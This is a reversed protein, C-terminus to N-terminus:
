CFLGGAGGGEEKDVREVISTGTQGVVGLRGLAGALALEVAENIDVLLREGRVADDAQVAAETGGDGADDDVTTQVKAHVVRELGSKAAEAELVVKDGREQEAPTDGGTGTEGRVREVGDATAHHHGRAGGDVVLAGNVAAGLDNGLLTDAGEELTSTGVDQTTDGAGTHQGDVVLELEKEKSLGELTAGALHRPGHRCLQRAPASPIGTRKHEQQAWGILNPSPRRNVVTSM